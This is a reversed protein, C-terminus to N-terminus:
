RRRRGSGRCPRGRRPWAAFVNWTAVDGPPEAAAIVVLSASTSNTTPARTVCTPKNSSAVAIVSAVPSVSVSVNVRVECPYAFPVEHEQRRLGTAGLGDLVARVEDDVLHRVRELERVLRAPRRDREGRVHRRHRDGLGNLQRAARVRCAIVYAYAAAPWSSSLSFPISM